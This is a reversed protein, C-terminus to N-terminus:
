LRPDRSNFYALTTNPIPKVARGMAQWESILRVVGPHTPAADHWVFVGRGACLEFCKESDNKCYEYSHSGDIFFFDAPWAQQFLWTKSDGFHQVIRGKCWPISRFERGIDRRDILHWDTLYPNWRQDATLKAPLDLTHVISTPLAEALRRTTHGFFTGIELIVWPRHRLALAVLADAQDDPLAGDEYPQVSM